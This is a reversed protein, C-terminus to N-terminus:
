KYLINIIGNYFPNNLIETEVFGVIFEFHFGAFDLIFGECKTFHIRIFYTKNVVQENKFVLYELIFTKLNYEM